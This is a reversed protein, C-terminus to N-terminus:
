QRRQAWFGIPVGRSILEVDPPAEGAVVLTGGRELVGSWQELAGVSPDLILAAEYLDTPLSKLQSQSGMVQSRLGQGALRERLEALKGADRSVLMLRCGHRALEMVTDPPELGVVVTRSGPRIVRLLSM